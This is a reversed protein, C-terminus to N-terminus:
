KFGHKIKYDENCQAMEVKVTDTAKSFGSQEVSCSPDFKSVNADGIDPHSQFVELRDAESLNRWIKEGLELYELPVVSEVNQLAGSMKEAWASSHNVKLLDEFLSDRNFVDEVNVNSCIYRVM